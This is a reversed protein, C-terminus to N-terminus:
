RRGTARAPAHGIRQNYTAGEGADIHRLVDDAKTVHALAARARFPLAQNLWLIPGLRRPVPVDFRPRELAAVIRRAVDEAEIFPMGRLGKFGSTLDTHVLSPRVVTLDVGSGRLELAVAESFGAVGFKTAVYTACDTGAVKSVASSINVIHGRRRPTMRRVGERTGHIVAQLNVALARATMAEDEAHIPGASMIGANNILVDIPGLQEEVQDLFATFAANDTVDLSVGLCNPGLEAAATAALEGDLDAIVVRASRSALARATALGIGRAGGTIVVVKTGLSRRNRLSAPM